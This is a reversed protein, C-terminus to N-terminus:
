RTTSAPVTRERPANAARRAPVTGAEVVRQIEAAPIRIARGLRVFTIRRNAIWARVCAVSLGWAEAAEKVTYLRM